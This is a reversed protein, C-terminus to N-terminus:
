YCRDVSYRTLTLLKDTDDHLLVLHQLHGADSCVQLEQVEHLRRQEEEELKQDAADRQKRMVELQQEQQEGAARMKKCEQELDDRQQQLEKRQLSCEEQMMNYAANISSCV